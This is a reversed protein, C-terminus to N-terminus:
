KGKFALAATPCAEVCEAATVRIADELAANFPAGIRVDFGRGIFTLGLAERRRETIRVCLGCKICKGPEFLVEAHHRVQVFRSRAETLYQRQRAGYETAYQRLACSDAKRCDCHMCRAAEALAEEASFGAEPGAKPEARPATSIGRLLEDMEGEMLRGMVHNYRKPQAPPAAPDPAQSLRRVSELLLRISVAADHHCRRCAKECFAKCDRCPDDPGTFAKLLRLAGEFDRAQVLRLVRPVDIKAPCVLHCTASCDGVHDSLLLELSTRRARRVDEDDNRLRMGDEAPAACAPILRGTKEDKVVCVLCSTFPELGERFCLTPITIGLKAAAFLVSTGDPVEVPKGDIEIRAM